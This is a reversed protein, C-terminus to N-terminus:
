LRLSESHIMSNSCRIAQYTFVSTKLSYVLESMNRSLPNFINQRLNAEGKGSKLVACHLGVSQTDV